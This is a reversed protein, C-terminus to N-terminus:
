SSNDGDAVRYPTLMPLSTSNVGRHQQVRHCDTGFGSADELTPTQPFAVEGMLVTGDVNSDVSVNGLWSGM